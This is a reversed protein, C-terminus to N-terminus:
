VSFIDHFVPREGWVADGLAPKGDTRHQEYEVVALRRPHTSAPLPVTATWTSTVGSVTRPLTIVNGIRVWGLDGADEELQHECWAKCSNARHETNVRIAQAVGTVTVRKSTSTVPTVSVSRRPFVQAFDAIVVPSLEAGAIADPQFRVLALRIFPTYSGVDLDIDCYWLDRSEDFGVTHGAVSVVTSTQPISVFAMNRTALPFDFLTPSRSVAPGSHVPDNGWRTVYPEIDEPFGADVAADTAVVVGLLEGFGSEFWPRRLYVRLGGTRTSSEGDLGRVWRSTPIVYEVLPAPPRASSLVNRVRNTPMNRTIPNRIFSVRVDARSGGPGVLPPTTGGAARGIPTIRGLFYDVTYDAFLVGGTQERFTYTTGDIDATVVVSGNVFGGTVWGDDDQIPALELEVDDEATVVVRERFAEAFRSTAELDYTITRHKTDGLQHRIRQVDVSNAGGGGPPLHAFDVDDVIVRVLKGEPPATGPGADVMDVWVGVISLKDTSSRHFTITRKKGFLDVWTAGAPRLVLDPAEPVALDPALVPQKVAHVLEVAKYPTFMWHEGKGIIEQLDPTMLGDDSLERWLAMDAARGEVQCSVRVSRTEGLPVYANIVDGVVKLHFPNTSGVPKLVLRKTRFQDPKPLGTRPLPAWSGQVLSLEIGALGPAFVQVGLALPDPLYDVPLVPVPYYPEGNPDVAILGLHNKERAAMAAYVETDVKILGDSLPVPVDFSGHQENLTQSGKPPALHRTSTDTSNVVDWRHTRVILRNATEGETRPAQLLVAPAPVPEHRLWTVSASRNQTSPAEPGPGNGAADVARARLRYTRGFRLMPLSGPTAGVVRTQFDFGAVPQPDDVPDGDTVRDDGPMIKEGPKPAGLGWGSWTLLTEQLFLDDPEGDFPSATPVRAITAEVDDVAIDEDAALFHHVVSRRMLSRFSAADITGTDVDVRMGRVLDELYLKVHEGPYAGQEMENQLQPHRVLTGRRFHDANGIRALQIGRGERTPLPESTPNVASPHLEHQQLTQGTAMLKFTTAATDTTLIQWRNADQLPYFGDEGVEPADPNSITRFLGSRVRCTTQPTYVRVQASGGAPLTPVIRVTVPTGGVARAVAAANPIWLDVVLGLLRLATPHPALLSLRTHFDPTPFEIPEFTSGAAPKGRDFFRGMAVVEDIYSPQRVVAGGAAHAAAVRAELQALLTLKGDKEPDIFGIAKVEEELEALPPHEMPTAAAIRGYLKRIGEDLATASFTRVIRDDYRKFTWPTVPTSPPFLGSWLDARPPPSVATADFTLDPNSSFQAKFTTGALVSPWTLARGFSALTPAGKLHFGVLVSLQFAGGPVPEGPAKGNPLATWVIGEFAAM